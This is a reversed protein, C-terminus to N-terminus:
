KTGHVEERRQGVSPGVIHVLRYDRYVLSVFIGM